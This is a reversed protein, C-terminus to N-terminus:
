VCLQRLLCFPPSPLLSRLFPPPHLPPPSCHRCLPPHLPSPVTAEGASGPLVTSEWGQWQRIQEVMTEFCVSFIKVSRHKAGSSGAETLEFLIVSQCRVRSLWKETATVVTVKLTQVAYLPDVTVRKHNLVRSLYCCRLKSHM